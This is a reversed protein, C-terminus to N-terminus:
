MKALYPNKNMNGFTIQLVRMGALKFDDQLAEVDATIVGLDEAVLLLVRKGEQKLKNLLSRGPSLQWEGNEATRDLYQGTPTSPM